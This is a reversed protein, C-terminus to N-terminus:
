VACPVEIGMLLPHVMDLADGMKEPTSTVRAEIVDDGFTRLLFVQELAEDEIEFNRLALCPLGELEIRMSELQPWEARAATLRAEFYEEDGTGERPMRRLHIQTGGPGDFILCRRGDDIAHWGRPLSVFAVLSGVGLKAVGTEPDRELVRPVLGVGSDRLNRNTPHEPDLCDLEEDEMVIPEVDAVVAVPASLKSLAFFSSPALSQAEGCLAVESGRSHELKFSHLMVAFQAEAANWLERPAIVGLLVLRGGDEIAMLRQRIATGDEVATAWSAVAQHAGLVELEPERPELGQERLLYGLWDAVNGDEYAPRAAVTFVLMAYPAHCVLLPACHTPKAFDHEEEPLEAVVWDDPRQYSFDLQAFPAKCFSPTFGSSTPVIVLEL